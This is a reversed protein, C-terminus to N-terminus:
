AAEQRVPADSRAPTTEAQASGVRRRAALRTIIGATTPPTLSTSGMLSFRLALRIGTSPATAFHLARAQNRMAMVLISQADDSM